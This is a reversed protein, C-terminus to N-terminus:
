YSLSFQRTQGNLVFLCMGLVDMGLLAHFRQQAFLEASIVALNDIVLPPTTALAGPIMLSIDYQDKIEPRDGTTPTNVTAKGTPELALATLVMPDLCTGSAGTDILARIQFVNPVAQNAKILAEKKPASVGVRAHVIAGMSGSQQLPLTFFPV